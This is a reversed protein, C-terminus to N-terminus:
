RKRRLILVLLGLSLNFKLFSLSNLILFFNPGTIYLSVNGLSM